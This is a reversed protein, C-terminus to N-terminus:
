NERKSENRRATQRGRRWVVVASGLVGILGICIATFNLPWPSRAEIMRGTNVDFTFEEGQNTRVTYTMGDADFDSWVCTPLRFTILSKARWCSVLDRLTYAGVSEGKTFFWGVFFDEAGFVLHEGDPAIYVQGERPRSFYQINWLPTTSGDNRYLGCESYKSRISHIESIANKDFAPHGADEAIPLPSVMVLVSRGDESVQRWSAPHPLCAMAIRGTNEVVVIAILTSILTLRKTNM